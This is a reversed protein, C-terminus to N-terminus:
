SCYQSVPIVITRDVLVSCLGVTHLLFVCMDAFVDYITLIIIVPDVFRLFAQFQFADFNNDFFIILQINGM